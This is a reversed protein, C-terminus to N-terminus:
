PALEIGRILIIAFFIMLCLGPLASVLYAAFAATQAAPRQSLKLALLSLPAGIFVGVLGGGMMYVSLGMPRIPRTPTFTALEWLGLATPGLFMLVLACAAGSAALSAVIRWSPEESM